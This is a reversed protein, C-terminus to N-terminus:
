GERPDSIIFRAIAVMVLEQVSIRMPNPYKKNLAKLTYGDDDASVVRKFTGCGDNRIFFYDNDPQPSDVYKDLIQFMVNSGDPWLDAMSDGAIKVIVWGGALQYFNATVGEGKLEIWPSAGIGLNFYAPMAKGTALISHSSEKSSVMQPISAGNEVIAHMTKLLDAPSMGALQALRALKTGDISTTQADEHLQVWARSAGILEGFEAQTFRWADRMRFLARGPVKVSRSKRNKQESVFLLRVIDFFLVLFNTCSSQCLM